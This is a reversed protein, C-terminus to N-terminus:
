RNCWLTGLIWPHLSNTIMRVLLTVETYNFVDSLDLIDAFTTKGHSTYGNTSRSSKCCKMLIKLIM